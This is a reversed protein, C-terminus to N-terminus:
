AVDASPRYSFRRREEKIELLTCLETASILWVTMDFHHEEDGPESFPNEPNDTKLHNDWMWIWEIMRQTISLNRQIPWQEGYITINLELWIIM